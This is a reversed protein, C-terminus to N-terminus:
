QFLGVLKGSIKQTQRSESLTVSGSAIQATVQQADIASIALEVSQGADTFVVRGNAQEQVFLQAPFTKGVLQAPDNTPLQAHIFIAPFPPNGKTHTEPRYSCLQLVAPRGTLNILRAYCGDTKVAPTMDLEMQGVLNLKQKVTDTATQTKEVVVERAQQVTKKVEQKAQECGAAVLLACAVLGCVRAMFSRGM